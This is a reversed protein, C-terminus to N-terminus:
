FDFFQEGRYWKLQWYFQGRKDYGCQQQIRIGTVTSRRKPNSAAEGSSSEPSLARGECVTECWGGARQGHKGSLMRDQERCKM